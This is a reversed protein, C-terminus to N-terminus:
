SFVQSIFGILVVAGALAAVMYGVNTVASNGKAIKTPGRDEYKFGCAPCFDANTFGNNVTNCEPCTRSAAM